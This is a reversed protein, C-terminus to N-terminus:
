SAQEMRENIRAVLVTCDDTLKSEDKVAKSLILEAMQKPTNGHIESIIKSLTGDKDECDMADIVGDSVMIVTDQDYLKKSTLEYDVESLIGLPMSTSKITEVWKGRKVFTAAAGIKVLDCMGSHLDIIGYDLTAPHEDLSNMVMVSNIMKLACDPDFGSDLLQELLEIVTESEICASTGCGMGDSLGMLLHGNEFEKLSYSDGSLMMSDRAKKAAGFVAYFNTEEVFTTTTFDTSVIKRCSKSPIINKGFVESLVAAIERSGVTVGRNCRATVLYEKRNKSNRLGMIKKVYVKKQQMKQKIYEEQKDTVKVFDYVQKSYDEIIKSIQSLQESMMQRSELLRNKWIEDTMSENGTNCNEEASNFFSMSLNEFTKAISLLKDECLSKAEEIENTEEMDELRYLINKPLMIFVVTAGLIGKVLSDSFIDYNFLRDFIGYYGLATISLVTFASAMKGLKRFVGSLIGMICVIGLYNEDYLLSIAVGLSVGMISGVSVGYKYATFMISITMVMFIIERDFGYQTGGNYLTLAWLLSIGAIEDNEYIHMTKNIATLTRDFIIYLISALGAMAAIMMFRIYTDAIYFDVQRSMFLDAIELGAGYVFVLGATVKKSIRLKGTSLIKYTLVLSILISANKIIQLKTFNSMMSVIFTAIGIVSTRRMTSFAVFYGIGVPNYGYINMGGIIYGIICQVFIKGLRERSFMLNDKKLIKAIDSMNEEMKQPVIGESIKTCIICM